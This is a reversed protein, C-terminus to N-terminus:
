GCRRSRRRRHLMVAAALLLTAGALFVPHEHTYPTWPPPMPAGGGVRVNLGMFDRPSYLWFLAHCYALAPLAVLALRVPRPCATYRVHVASVVAGFVLAVMAFPLYFVRGTLVYSIHYNAARPMLYLRIIYPTILSSFCLAVAAYTRWGKGKGAALMGATVLALTLTWRLPEGFMIQLFGMTHVFFSLPYAITLSLGFSLVSSLLAALFSASVLDASAIGHRGFDYLVANALAGIALAVACTIAGRWLAPGGWFWGLILFCVPLLFLEHSCLLGAAYCAVAGASWAWRARGTEGWCFLSLALLALSTGQVYSFCSFWTLTSLTIPNILFVLGAVRAATVHQLLRNALVYVLWANVSHFAFSMALAAQPSPGMVRYLAVFCARPIIRYADFVTPTEGQLWGLDDTALVLHANRLLFVLGLLFAGIIFARDKAQLRPRIM